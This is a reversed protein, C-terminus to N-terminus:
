KVDVADIVFVLTEDPGIKTSPSQKGYALGPPITLMRRGGQHMGVLGDNWGKIVGATGVPTVVFPDRGPEWNSDFEVGTSYAKGVYKVTVSSGKKVEAGKGVVLDKIQLTKPAPAKPVVIVPKTALAGSVAPVAKATDSKSSSWPRALLVVAVLGLAGFLVFKNRRKSSVVKKAQEDLQLQKQARLQDQRQRKETAVPQWAIACARRCQM